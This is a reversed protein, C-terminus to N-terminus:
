YTKLSFGKDALAIKIEALSKDGLNPLTSLDYENLKLLDNLTHIGNNLFCKRIRSTFNFFEVIPADLDKNSQNDAAIRITLQHVQAKLAKNEEEVIVQEGLWSLLTEQDVQSHLYGKKRNNLIEEKLAKM